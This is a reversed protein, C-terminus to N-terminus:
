GALMDNNAQDEFRAEDLADFIESASLNQFVRVQFLIQKYNCSLGYQNWAMGLGASLIRTQHSQFSLVIIRLFILMCM